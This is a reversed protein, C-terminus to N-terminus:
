YDLRKLVIAVLVQIDGAILLLSVERLYKKIGSKM